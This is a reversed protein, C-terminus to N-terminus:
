VDYMDVKVQKQGVKAKSKHYLKSKPEDHNWYM